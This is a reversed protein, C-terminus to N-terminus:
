SLKDKSVLPVFSVEELAYQEYNRGRIIKYLVQHSRQPGVPIIMCGGIALQELLIDPVTPPAATVIIGQYPAYKGWGQYGDGYKFEVNNLGLNELRKEAKQLLHEIREITYVKNVLQALIATQYGSGTGIELVRDLPGQSLLAETMFAVIYPQSITQGYGIPLPHNAYAHSELAEDIFLHRPTARIAELVTRNHIGQEVLRNILRERSFELIMSSDMMSFVSIKNPLQYFAIVM